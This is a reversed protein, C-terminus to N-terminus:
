NCRYSSARDNFGYDALNYIGPKVIGGLSAGGCGVDSRLTNTPPAPPISTNRVSRTSYLPLYTAHSPIIQPFHSPLPAWLFSPNKSMSPARLAQM